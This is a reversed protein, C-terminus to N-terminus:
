RNFIGKLMTEIQPLHEEITPWIIAYRGAYGLELQEGYRMGHSLYLVVVDEGLKQAFYPVAEEASYDAPAEDDVYAALAQRANATRDTWAANEKAYAELIPAFYLAVQRVAEKVDKGYKAMNDLMQQDSGGWDITM